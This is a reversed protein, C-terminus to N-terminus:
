ILKLAEQLGFELAKEYSDYYLGDDSEEKILDSILIFDYSDDKYVNIILHINHKERLWKQLLSQTPAYIYEDSLGSGMFGYNSYYTHEGNKNYLSAETGYRSIVDFGKENALKATEFSILEEKM